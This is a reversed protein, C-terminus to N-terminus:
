QTLQPPLLLESSLHTLRSAIWDAFWSILTVYVTVWGILMRNAKWIIPWGDMWVIFCSVLWYGRSILWNVTRRDKMYNALWGALHDFDTIRRTLWHTLRSNLWDTSWLLALWKFFTVWGVLWHALLDTFLFDKLRKSFALWGEAM